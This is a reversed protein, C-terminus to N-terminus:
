TYHIHVESHDCHNAATCLLVTFHILNTKSRLTPGSRALPSMVNGLGGLRSPLSIGRRSGVAQVVEAEREGPGAASKIKATSVDLSANGNNMNQSIVMAELRGRFLNFQFTNSMRIFFMM